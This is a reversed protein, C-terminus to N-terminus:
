TPPTGMEADPGLLCSDALRPQPYLISSRMTQTVWGVCSMSTVASRRWSSEAQRRIWFRRRQFPFKSRDHRLRPETRRARLVKSDQHRQGLQRSAPGSESARRGAFPSQRRRCRPRLLRRAPALVRVTRSRGPSSGPYSWSVSCIMSCKAAASSTSTRAKIYGGSQATVGIASADITNAACEFAMPRRCVLPDPGGALTSWPWEDIVLRADPRPGSGQVAAESAAPRPPGCEPHYDAAGPLEAWRGGPACRLVLDHGCHDPDDRHRTGRLWRMFRVRHQQQVESINEALHDTVMRAVYQRNRSTGARSIWRRSRPSGPVRTTFVRM